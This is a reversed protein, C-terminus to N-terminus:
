KFFKKFTNFSLHYQVYFFKEPDTASWVEPLGNRGSSQYIKITVYNHLKIQSVLIMIILFFFM